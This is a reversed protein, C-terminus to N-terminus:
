KDRSVYSGDQTSVIIKEGQEIFMPVKVLLGTQVIADKLANTKTDGKVGPVTETVELVVKDPLIVGLVEIENYFMVDVEMGEFIFKSEYAIQAQTLEIQEYTEMNMFVHADGNVYLYQMRTKDIQARDVKESANFTYDIVSGTRLNRLKSRVFAAGKGPKVHMFEIIQYINGDFSITLGTKFDSTSIM